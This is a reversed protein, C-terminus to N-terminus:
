YYTHQDNIFKEIENEDEFTELLCCILYKDLEQKKLSLEKCFIIDSKKCNGDEFIIHTSGWNLDDSSQILVKLVEKIQIKNFNKLEM